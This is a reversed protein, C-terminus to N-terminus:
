VTSSQYPPSDNPDSSAGRYEKDNEVLDSNGKDFHEETM